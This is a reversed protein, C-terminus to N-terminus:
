DRIALWKKQYVGMPDYRLAQRKTDFIRDRPDQGVGALYAWNGWNSAADYDILKKEFYDAGWQWTVHLTKVLYSAVNQRGRNSMWGTQNLERMNANIFADPSTGSCWAQFLSRQKDQSLNDTYPSVRNFLTARQKMANFRFYDRWLLEFILWYTSENKCRTEEYQRIAAYVQRPSLAGCALWPSLKSSDNWEIMGNRTEKYVRLRDQVFIYDNLRQLGAHEGPQIHPHYQAEQLTKDLDWSLDTDKNAIPEPLSKVIPLPAAICLNKEVAIRFTTFVSPLADVTFPLNEEQILSGQSIAICQIGPIAQLYIEENLEETTPETSFFVTNINKQKILKPLVTEALEHCILMAGGLSDIKHKFALVSALIFEQRMRGARMFSRSPCWIILGVQAETAFHTLALNDHMRLDNRLWYLARM